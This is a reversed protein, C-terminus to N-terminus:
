EHDPEVLYSEGRVDRLPAPSDRRPPPWPLCHIAIPVLILSLSCLLINSLSSGPSYVALLIFVSEYAALSERLNRRTIVTEPSGAGLNLQSANTTATLTPSPPGSSFPRRGVSSGNSLNLKRLNRSSSSMPSSELSRRSITCYGSLRTGISFETLYSFRRFPSPELLSLSRRLRPGPFGSGLVWFGLCWM